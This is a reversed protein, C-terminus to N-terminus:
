KNFRKNNFSQYETNTMRSPDAEMKMERCHDRWISFLVSGFLLPFILFIWAPSLTSIWTLVDALMEIPANKM